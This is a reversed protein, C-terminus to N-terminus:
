CQNTGLCGAQFSRWGELCMWLSTAFVFVELTCSDEAPGVGASNKLFLVSYKLLHHRPLAKTAVVAGATAGALFGVGAAINMAFPFLFAPWGEESEERPDKEM